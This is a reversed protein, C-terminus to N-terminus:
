ISGTILDTLCTVSFSTYNKTTGGIDLTGGDEYSIPLCNRGRYTFVGLGTPNNMDIEGKALSEMNTECYDIITAAKEESIGKLNFTYTKINLSVNTNFDGTIATFSVLSTSGPQIDDPSVPIDYVKQYKIQITM